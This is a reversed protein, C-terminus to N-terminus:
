IFIWTKWMNFRDLENEVTSRDGHAMRKVELIGETNKTGVVKQLKLRCLKKESATKTLSWM